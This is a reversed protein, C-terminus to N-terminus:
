DLRGLLEGLRALRRHMHNVLNAREIPGSLMGQIGFGSDSLFHGAFEPFQRTVFGHAARTWLNVQERYQPILDRDELRRLQSVLNNGEQIYHNLELLFGQNQRGQDLQQSHQDRSERVTHFALFQAIFIGVLGLTIWVSIPIKIDGFINLMLGITSGIVTIAVVWWWRLVATVYEKISRWM